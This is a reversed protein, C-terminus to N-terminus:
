GWDDTLWNRLLAAAAEPNEDVFKEIMRRTESKNEVDINEIQPEPNSQLLDEVSLEPTTEEEEKKTGMSRLIVFALLGLILIILFASLVTTWSIQLSEKDYFIPSEYAVITINAEPIGTANAAMSYLDPDVELKKDASNALKYEEWTTGDLLGQAEVDEEHIEKYTIAAISMSSASYNIAGAPTVKYQSSENPLYDRENETSSSSSSGYDSTVYTTNEGNSDTGPIGGVGNEATSEYNEEHSLMGETRGENAYYEKVTQEYNSYDMDLHSTVEVNNYNPTGLLVKKVQNAIMAEAQNRLEQMSNAIGSSSYDDGGAFLLQGDSDLITINATNSNRLFTQIAKALNAAKTATFSGDHEIQVYASAEEEKAILTGTDEPINLNVKCDKIGEINLIDTKLKNELYLQYRKATDSTTTSLSSALADDLSYENPVYGSSGLALEAATYQATEVSITLADQSETHQINNEDLIAIIQSADQTNPATILVKYKPRSVFFIIIGFVAITFVALGIIIGKQRSTFKNWWEKIKEILEKLKEPM